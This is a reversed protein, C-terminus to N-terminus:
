ENKEVDPMLKLVNPDVYWGAIEFTMELKHDEQHQQKTATITTITTAAASAAEAATSPPSSPPSIRTRAETM